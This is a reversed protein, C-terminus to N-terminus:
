KGHNRVEQIVDALRGAQQSLFVADAQSVPKGNAFDTWAMSISLLATEIADFVESWHIPPVKPRSRHIGPERPPFLDSMELGVAAVVDATPCGAFCHLLVSGIETECISLSPSRDDHAPCCAIWNGSGTRRVKDLCSLIKEVSM